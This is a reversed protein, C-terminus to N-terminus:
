HGSGYKNRLTALGSIISVLGSLVQVTGEIKKNQDNITLGSITSVKKNLQILDKSELFPENLEALVYECETKVLEKCKGLRLVDTNVGDQRPM